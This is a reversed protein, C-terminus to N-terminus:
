KESCSSEGGGKILRLSAGAVLAALLRGVGFGVAAAWLTHSHPALEAPGAQLVAIPLLDSVGEEVRDSDLPRSGNIHAALTGVQRVTHTDEWLLPQTRGASADAVAAEASGSVAATGGPNQDVKGLIVAVVVHM